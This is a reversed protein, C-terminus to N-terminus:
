VQTQTHSNTEVSLKNQPITDGSLKNLNNEHLSDNDSLNAESDEIECLGSIDSCSANTSTYGGMSVSMEDIGSVGTDTNYGPPYGYDDPLYRPISNSFHIVEDADDRAFNDANGNLEEQSDEQNNDLQYTPLYEDPHRNYGNDKEPDFEDDYNLDAHLALIQEFNPREPLEAEPDDLDDDTYCENETFESDGIYEPEMDPYESDEPYDTYEYEDPHIHINSDNSRSSVPSDPIEGM